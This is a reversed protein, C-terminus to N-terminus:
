KTERGSLPRYQADYGELCTIPAKGALILQRNIRALKNFYTREFQSRSSPKRTGRGWKTTKKNEKGGM